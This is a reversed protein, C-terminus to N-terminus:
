DRDVEIPVVFIRSLDGNNEPKPKASRDYVLLIRNPAIEVMETYSSTQWQEHGSAAAHHVSGEYSGIRYTADPAWRHLPDGLSENGHRTEDGM